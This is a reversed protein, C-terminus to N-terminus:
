FPCVFSALRILLPRDEPAACPHITDDPEVVEDVGSGVAVTVSPVPMTGNCNRTAGSTSQHSLDGDRSRIFEVFCSRGASLVEEVIPDTHTGRWINVWQIDVNPLESKPDGAKVEDVSEKQKGRLTALKNVPKASKCLRRREQARRIAVVLKASEAVPASVDSDGHILFMHRPMISARPNYRAVNYLVASPSPGGSVQQAALHAQSLLSMMTLHAGASQGMLTVNTVDGNYRAANRVVWGVADSVDLVMGEMNTQPFNRYDPCFVIYGCSSLLRALLANWLYCGVIWAGGSICIVVPFKRSKLSSDPTNRKHVMFRFLSDPPVPLYIDLKARNHLNQKDEDDDSEDYDGECFTMRLTDDPKMEDAGCEDVVDNCQGGVSPLQLRRLAENFCDIADRGEEHALRGSDLPLQPLGPMVSGDAFNLTSTLQHISESELLRDPKSADGSETTDDGRRTCAISRFLMQLNRKKTSKSSRYAVRRIINPSLLYWWVVPILFRINLLAFLVLRITMIMWKMGLGMAVALRAALVFLWIVQNFAYGLTGDTSMIHVPLHM